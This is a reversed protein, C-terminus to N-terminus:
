RGSVTSSNVAQCSAVPWSTLEVAKMKGYGILEPRPRSAERYQCSWALMQLAICTDCRLILGVVHDLQCRFSFPPM